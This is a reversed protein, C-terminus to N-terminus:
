IIKAEPWLVKLLASCASSDGTALFSNSITLSVVAGIMEKSSFVTAVFKGTITLGGTKGYLYYLYPLGLVIFVAWALSLSILRFKWERKFSKSDYAIVIISIVILFGIAAPKTLYAFATFVGAALMFRPSKHFVAKLGFYVACATLFYYLGETLAEGSFRVMYPHIAVFLAAVLGTKENYVLKGIAYSVPIVLTGFVLSVVRASLEMEGFIVSSFSTLLPYLPPRIINFIGGYDGGSFREAMRLFTVSDNSITVANIVVYLRILFGFLLILFLKRRLSSNGVVDIVGATSIVSM